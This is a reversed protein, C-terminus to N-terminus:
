IQMRMVEQYAETVRNRIELAMRFALESRVVPITVSHLDNIQGTMLQSMAENAEKQPALTENVLRDLVKGFGGGAGSGGSIKSPECSLGDIGFNGFGGNLGSLPQMSGGLGQIDM